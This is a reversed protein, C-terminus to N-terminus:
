RDRFQYECITEHLANQLFFNDAFMQLIRQEGWTEEAFM